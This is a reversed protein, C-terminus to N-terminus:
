CFISRSKTLQFEFKEENLIRGISNERLLIILIM